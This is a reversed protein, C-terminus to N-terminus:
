CKKTTDCCKELFKKTEEKYEDPYKRMHAVHTFKEFSKAFITRSSNQEKKINILHQVYTYLM